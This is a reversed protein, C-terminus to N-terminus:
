EVPPPPGKQQRAAWAADREADSIVGDGDTDIRKMMEAHNM